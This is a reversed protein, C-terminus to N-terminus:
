CESGNALFAEIAETQKSMPFFHDGIIWGSQKPSNANNQFAEWFPWNCDGAKDLDGTRECFAKFTDWYFRQNWKPDTPFRESIVASLQKLNEIPQGSISWGVEKLEDYFLLAVHDDTDIEDRDRLHKVANMFETKTPSYKKAKPKQDGKAKAAKARGGKAGNERNKEVRATYAAKSRDVSLLCERYPFQIGASVETREGTDAYNMVARFLEGLQDDTLLDMYVRAKDIYWQFYTLKPSESM